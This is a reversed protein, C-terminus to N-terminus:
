PGGNASVHQHVLGRWDELKDALGLKELYAIDLSGGQRERNPSLASLEDNVLGDAIHTAALIGFEGSDVRQPCHHNAVAEIVSYPLGWLGLLYAGVEAHTVGWARQEAVHMPCRTGDMDAFVKVFHEPIEVALLLKGIDHLLGAVFADERQKTDTFFAPAFTAVLMAHRQLADLSLRAPARAASVQFVEVALVVQKITNFGLYTVAEEVKSVSRALGFFASNVIQLVKACMAMDQKLIKAVEDASATEKALITMLQSYVRPLAPLSEVKGVTKKVVDENILAQLSCAREVVSEIVGPECPKSLFQHAVPVARLATEMEAHGSLVIRVVRPYREQVKKLLTAGDMTPMRMDSVIVDIPERELLDLAAAGSQAFLMHWKKRQRHLRHRLGDLINQEDDVFLIRTEM